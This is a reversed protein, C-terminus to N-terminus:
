RWGASEMKKLEERASHEIIKLVTGRSEDLAPRMFPRAKSKKTGFELLHAYKSPRHYKADEGAVATIQAKIDAKTLGKKKGKLKVIKLEGGTKEGKVAYVKPDVYVKGSVMKTVTSKISQKLLGSDEPAKAKAIQAVLKVGKGIAKRLIQRQGKTKLVEINRIIQVDGFVNIWKQAKSDVISDGQGSFRNRIRPSAMIGKGGLLKAV